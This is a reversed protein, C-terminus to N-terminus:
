IKKLLKKPAKFTVTIVLNAVTLSAGHGANRVKRVDAYARTIDSYTKTDTM